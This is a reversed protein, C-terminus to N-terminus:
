VYKAIKSKMNTLKPENWSRMKDNAETLKSIENYIEESKAKLHHFFKTFYKM